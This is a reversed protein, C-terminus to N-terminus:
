RPGEAEENASVMAEGLAWVSSIGREGVPSIGGAEDDAAKWRLLLRILGSRLRM